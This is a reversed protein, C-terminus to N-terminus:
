GSGDGEHHSTEGGPDADTVTFHDATGSLTLLRSVPPPLPGLLVLNRGDADHRRRAELLANLLMSDAFRVQSLDVATTPLGARDAAALADQLDESDEHDVEGRVVIRSMRDDHTVHVEAPVAADM